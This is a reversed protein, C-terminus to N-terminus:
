GDIRTWKPDAPSYRQTLAQDLYPLSLTYTGGAVREVRFWKDWLDPPVTTGKVQIIDGVRMDHATESM